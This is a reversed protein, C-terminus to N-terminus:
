NQDEEQPADTKEQTALARAPDHVSREIKVVEIGAATARRIM